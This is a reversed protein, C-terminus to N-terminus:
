GPSLGLAARLRRTDMGPLDRNRQAWEIDDLLTAVEDRLSPDAVADRPTRGRLAPIEMDLWNKEYERMYEALLETEAEPPLDNVPAPEEGAEDREALAQEVPVTSEDVLQATPDIDLVLAQLRRLREVSNTDLAIRDGDRRVTGRIVAGRGPVETHEFLADGGDDDLHEGLRRWVADPDAVDYRATCFVLDEGEANSLRPLGSRPAFFGAIEEGGADRRLLELLSSRQLRSVFRADDRLRLEGAGDPLARGYMLDLPELQTTLTRDRIYVEERTLLDRCRVGHGPRVEAVELLQRRSDLWSRALALEDDPLLAGRQDLFRALLGGDFLALDHALPDTLATVFSDGDAGALLEAYSVVIERQRPRLAFLVAKTWLWDARMPFPHRLQTAHCLKYKRGSGCPCPRNRGVEGEPAQLFQRLVYRGPFSHPTEARRYLKEAGVADGRDSRYWALDELAPDLDPDADVAAELLREAAHIDGRGEAAAARLYLPVASLAGTVASAMAEALPEREPEVALDAGLPQLVPRPRAAEAFGALQAVSPLAGHCRHMALMTRWARFVLRESVGLGPLEGYWPAGPVGVYGRFVELGVRGFLASLPPLAVTFAAPLERRVALVVEDIAAGPLMADEPDDDYATLADSASRGAQELLARVDAIQTEDAHIRMHPLLQLEGASLRLGILSDPQCADLWGTPGTLGVAVGPPLPRPGGAYTAHVEGGGALPLGEDALRGWLDFDGDAALVGLDLEEATVYHTFVAGDAVTPAHCVV